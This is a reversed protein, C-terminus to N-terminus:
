IISNLSPDGGDLPNTERISKMFEDEYGWLHEKATKTKTFGGLGIELMIYRLYYILPEPRDFFFLETFNGMSPKKVINFAKAAMLASFLGDFSMLKKAVDEDM